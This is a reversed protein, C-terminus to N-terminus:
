RGTGPQESDAAIRLLTRPSTAIGMNVAMQTGVVSSVHLILDLLLTTLRLTRRVMCRFRCVVVQLVVQRGLSPLDRLSRTYSSHISRSCTGCSPCHIDDRESALTVYVTDETAEVSTIRFGPFDMALMILTVRGNRTARITDIDYRYRM